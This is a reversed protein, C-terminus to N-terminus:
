PSSMSSTSELDTTPPQFSRSSHAASSSRSLMRPHPMADMLPVVGAASYQPDVAELRQELRQSLHFQAKVQVRLAQREAQLHAVLGRHGDNEGLAKALQRKYDDKSLETARKLRTVQELELGLRENERQMHDAAERLSGLDAGYTELTRRCTRLEASAQKYSMRYEDSRRVLDSLKHEREDYKARWEAVEALAQKLSRDLKKHQEVLSRYEDAIGTLHVHQMQSESLKLQLAASEKAHAARTAELSDGASKLKQELQEIQQQRKQALQQHDPQANLTTQLRSIEEASSKRLADLEERLKAETQRLSRTEANGSRLLEQLQDRTQSYLSKINSCEAQLRDVDASVPVSISAPPTVPLTSPGQTGQPEEPTHPPSKGLQDALKVRENEAAVWRRHLEDKERAFQDKQEQVQKELQETQEHLYQMQDNLRQRENEPDSTLRGARSSPKTADIQTNLRMIELDREKIEIEAANLQARTNSAKTDLLDIEEELASIRRSSLDVLDVVPAPPQKLPVRPNAFTRNIPRNVMMRPVRGAPDRKSVLEEMKQQCEALKRSTEAYEARMRLVCMKLDDTQKNREYTQARAERKAQDSERNLRLIEARLQNNETRLAHLETKSREATARTVRDDRELKTHQKELDKVRDLSTQLDRLLIGVLPSAEAPLPQSYGLLYLQRQLQAPDLSINNM